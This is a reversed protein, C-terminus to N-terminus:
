RSGNIVELALLSCVNRERIDLWFVEVRSGLVRDHAIVKIVVAKWEPTGIRQVLDGAKM